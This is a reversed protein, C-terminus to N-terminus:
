SPRNLELIAGAVIVVALVILVTILVGRASGARPDTQLAAARAALDRLEHDDLHHLAPGLPGVRAALFAIDAQRTKGVESLRSEVTERTVLHDDARLGTGTFLMMAAALIAVSRRMM